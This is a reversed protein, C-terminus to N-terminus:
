APLDPLPKPAQLEAPLDMFKMSPVNMYGNPRFEEKPMIGESSVMEHAPAEDNAFTSAFTDDPFVHVEEDLAVLWEGLNLAREIFGQDGKANRRQLLAPLWRHNPQATMIEVGFEISMAGMTERSVQVAVTHIDQPVYVVRLVPLNDLHRPTIIEKRM